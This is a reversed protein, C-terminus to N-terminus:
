QEEKNDEPNVKRASFDAYCVNDGLKVYDKGELVSRLTSDKKLRREKFFLIGEFSSLQEKSIERIFLGEQKFYYDMNPAASFDYYLLPTEKERATRAAELCGDKVGTMRNIQNMSFSGLFITVFISASIISIALPTHKDKLAKLALLGGLVMPILIVWYPAWLGPLAGAIKEPIIFRKFISAIGIAIFIWAIAAVIGKVLAQDQHRGLLAKEM